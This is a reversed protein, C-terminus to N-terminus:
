VWTNIKYRVDLTYLMTHILGCPKILIQCKPPLLHPLPLVYFEKKIWRTYKSNSLTPIYVDNTITEEWMIMCGQPFFCAKLFILLSTSNLLHFTSIMGPKYWPLSLPDFFFHKFSIPTPSSVTNQFQTNSAFHSYPLLFQPIVWKETLLLWLDVSCNYSQYSWLGKFHM